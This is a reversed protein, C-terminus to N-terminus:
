QLPRAIAGSLFGAFRLARDVADAGEADASIRLSLDDATLSGTYGHDAECSPDSCSAPELDIRSVAGWSVGLMVERHPQGPRFRAPDAVVRTVMVTKIATIPVSEVSTTAYAVPSSEDPPHEDTHGVVLRHATLALVTVHRRVESADLTTEQHVVFTLVPEGALVSEVADMVLAPYYGTLEIADRLEQSAIDTDTV